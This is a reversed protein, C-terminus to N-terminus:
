VQKEAVLLMTEFDASLAALKTAMAMVKDATLEKEVAKGKELVAKWATEASRLDLYASDIENLMFQPLYKKTHQTVRQKSQEITAILPTVKGIIM